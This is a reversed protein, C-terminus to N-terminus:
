LVDNAALLQQLADPLQAAGEELVWVTQADRCIALLAQILETGGPKQYIALLRDPDVRAYSIGLPGFELVVQPLEILRRVVLRVGFSHIRSAFHQVARFSAELTHADLEILLRKCVAPGSQELVRPLAQLFSEQSLSPLSVRMVLVGEHEALWDLAMALSERDCAGSLGLRTAVPMFQYASSTGAEDVLMLTAEHWYCSQLQRQSISLSFRELRLGEQLRIRWQSEGQQLYAPAQGQVDRAVVEIEGHGASEARMLAQDLRALVHSFMEDAFFDTKAMAWRCYVGSALQIRQRMLEERFEHLLAEQRPGELLELLLVFDSGNLRALVPQGDGLQKRLLAQLQQSMSYLWSDVLPRAMSRNIDALDLLRFMFVWGQRQQQMRRRLENIFFKRNALGTVADQNLALELSEIKAQREEATALISERAEDLAETLEHLETFTTGRRTRSRRTLTADEQALLNLEKIVEVRLMRRLWRLLGFVLLGWLLSAICAWAVVYLFSRWLQHRAFVPDAELWLWGSPQQGEQVQAAVQVPELAILRSFWSPVWLGEALDRVRVLSMTGDDTQFEIRSFQGSDFFADLVLESSTRERNAAQSLSLALTTAAANTQRILQTHLYDRASHTSLWVAGLLLVFIAVTISFLLQRLLSM